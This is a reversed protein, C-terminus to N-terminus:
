EAPDELAGRVATVFSRLLGSDLGGEPRLGSCVDVGVPRVQRIADAVNGPDLGGALFVPRDVAQVIEASIRWDHTRGTGGLVRVEAEPSGSDLLVADVLSAVERAQPVAEPGNVHIVQVLPIGPLERRLVALEEFPVRDVLQLVNARAARQQAVIRDAETEATLLFSSVAPPIAAAIERIADDSIPGPGSPMRSVLGVADAGRAIALRAEDLSAICCIKIRM